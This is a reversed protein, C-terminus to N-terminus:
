PDNALLCAVRRSLLFGPRVMLCDKTFSKLLEPMPKSILFDQELPRRSVLSWDFIFPSISVFYLATCPPCRHSGTKFIHTSLCATVSACRKGHRQASEM